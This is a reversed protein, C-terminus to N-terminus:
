AQVKITYTFLNTYGCQTCFVQLKYLKNSMKKVLDANVVNENLNFPSFTPTIDYYPSLSYHWQIKRKCKECKIMSKIVKNMDVGRNNQLYYISYLGTNEM